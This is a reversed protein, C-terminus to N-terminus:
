EEQPSIFVNLTGDEDQVYRVSEDKGIDDIFEQSAEKFDKESEFNLIVRKSSM